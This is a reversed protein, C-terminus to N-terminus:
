IGLRKELQEIGGELDAHHVATVHYGKAKVLNRKEADAAKTADGDHPPGDVMVCISGTAYYLDASLTPVGDVEIKRHQEDPVPLGRARMLQLVDKELGSEAGALLEEWRTSEDGGGEYAEAGLDRVLEAAAVRDLDDHWMQNYYSLLCDYCARVCADGVEDGSEPDIHLTSLARAVVREWELGQGLRNLVGIGGEETEYLLIRRGTAQDGFVRNSLESEELQFAVQVGVQLAFAFSIAASESTGAPLSIELLDHRGEAFLVIGRRLSEDKTGCPKDDGFHADPPNWERCRECQQFGLEDSARSGLNMLLLSGGHAYRLGFDGLSGVRVAAGLSYRAEISYGRRQREEEDPGVRARRRALADPLELASEFALTTLLSRGCRPCSGQAVVDAGRSYGGCECAKIQDWQEGAGARLLARSIVYQRGRVYISNGPALERLATARPRRVPDKRDPVFAAATNRPFAYGPLFGDAALRRLAFHDGKGRRMDHLRGELSSRRREEARELKSTQARLHLEDLEALGDRYERRFPDWAGDFSEGFQGVRQALWGEDLWAFQEVESSFTSKAADLIQESRQTLAGTLESRVQEFVPLGEQNLDLIESPKTLKLDLHEIILANMHTGILAQNDLLFRPTAIKGSIMQEPREFFYRDHPGRRGGSGCFTVVLSSQGHRGARGARQAYNAPSPPVNRMYAASLNGVDIGLEMTPTCVLVNLPDNVDNFGTEARVREEDSLAGTHEEALLAAKGDLSQRYEDVAYAHEQGSPETDVKICGVCPRSARFGYRAGCRACRQGTVKEAASLEVRERAIVTASGASEPMGLLGVEPGSLVAIAGLVIRQADDGQDKSMGLFRKTWRVAGSGSSAWRRTSFQYPNLKDQTFVTPRSAPFAPDHCHAKERIGQVVTRDFEEGDLFAAGDFARARRAIDLLGRAYDHRQDVGAAALEPVGGWLDDDAAVEDLGDYILDAVGADLLSPQNLRAYGSAELLVAFQLYDLYRREAKQAGKGYKSQAAEAYDPVSDAEKMALLAQKAAETATLPQGAAALGAYLARRFHLRRHFANLHSYQFSTDQVNDCFALLRKPEDLEEIMSTVLVDTASARGIMGVQRFKNWERARGHRLGCAPCMLLPRPVLALQREEGHDCGGGIVGCRACVIENQPVAGESGKRAFGDKRVLDPDPPVEDRDWHQPYVYVPTGAQEGFGEFERPGIDTGEERALKAAVLTEQGCGICFVVPHSRVGDIGQEACRGCVIEGRESLHPDASGFSRLCLSIERGQSFFAHAKPALAGSSVAAQLAQELPEGFKAEFRERLRDLRPAETGLVSELWAGQPDDAPDIKAPAPEDVIVDETAFPEAFLATAFEAVAEGATSGGSAEVTASTAICRVDGTGAHQKFRRILCAVDAGQRGSYTHVEDLVLTQLAGLQDSPFIHRDAFRTLAYELMVYNTILIDTGGDPDRLADRNTVECDLPVARGTLAKWNELAQEASDPLKGQYNCVRLGTGDLLTVLDEYQANALANMPYVIVAKVGRTGADYADLAQSIVPVMFAFSKGSGTGTAVVVNRGALVKEIARSQHLRPFEFSPIAASVLGPVGPHLGDIEHLALGDQYGGRASLYPERWYLSGEEVREGVWDRIAGSSFTTAGEVFRRYTGRLADLSELPDM